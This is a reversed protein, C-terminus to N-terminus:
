KKKKGSDGEASLAYAYVAPVVTCYIIPPPAPPPAGEHVYMNALCGLCMGVFIKAMVEQEARGMTTAAYTQATIMLNKVFDVGFIIKQLTGPITPGTTWIVGKVPSVPVSLGLPQTVQPARGPTRSDRPAM